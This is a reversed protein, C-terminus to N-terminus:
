SKSYLDFVLEEIKRSIYSEAGGIDARNLMFVCELNDKPSIFFHTGYAGSWGYTDETAGTLAKSQRIFMGLGWATGPILEMHKEPAETRMQRVTTTHLFQQMNYFGNDYLMQVFHEYDTLTSFLGGSGSVYGPRSLFPSPTNEWQKSIDALKHDQVICLPVLRKKQEENLRFATDNMGLPLFIRNQCFDELSTGSVIEIIRGLVHYGEVASYGTGKGPQFDLVSSALGEVYEKLSGNQGDLTPEIAASVLGQGLGSSHSLLDKITIDRTAPETELNELNFEAMQKAMEELNDINEFSYRKDKVVQMDSFEPIYKRVPDNISLLSQEELMMIGVAIVPKTMSMIRYIDDYSTEKTRSFDSYGWKNQYVIEEDQRILISAGLIEENKLYESLVNDVPDDVRKNM